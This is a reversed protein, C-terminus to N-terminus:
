SLSVTLRKMLNTLIATFEDGGLRAVIDCDRVASTLREAVSKYPDGSADLTDNIQKFKDLDIFVLAMLQNARQSRAISLELHQMFLRRNPLQTLTDYFALEELESKDKEIESLLANFADVAEGLEDDSERTARLKWNRDQVINNATEGLHIIPRCVSTLWPSALIFAVIISLSIGLLLLLSYGILKSYLIHKSVILSLSGVLKEGLLLPQHVELQTLSSILTSTTHLECPHNFLSKDVSRSAFTMNQQNHFLCAFKSAPAALLTDLHEQAVKRDNFAIAAVSRKATQQALARVTMELQKRGDYYAFSMVAIELLSGATLLSALLVAFLKRQISLQAFRTVSGRSALFTSIEELNLECGNGRRFTVSCYNPIRAALM